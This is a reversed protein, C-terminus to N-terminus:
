AYFLICVIVLTAINLLKCTIITIISPSGAGESTYARVQLVYVTEPSLGNVTYILVNNSTNAVATTNYQFSYQTIIGNPNVPPSWQLTVSISNVSVTELSQPESPVVFTDNLVALM